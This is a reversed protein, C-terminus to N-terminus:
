KVFEDVAFRRAWHQSIVKGLYRNVKARDRMLTQGIKEKKWGFTLQFKRKLWKLFSSLYNIIKRETLSMNSSHFCAFTDKLFFLQSIELAFKEGDKLCKWRWDKMPLTRRLSAFDWCREWDEAIISNDWASHIFKQRPVGLVPFRIM